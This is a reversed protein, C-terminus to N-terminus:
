QRRLVLLTVAGGLLAVASLRDALKTYQRSLASGTKAAIIAYGTDFIYAIVAFTAALIWIWYQAGSAPIFQPLFAAHFLLTKPNAMAVAFGRVIARRRPLAPLEAAREDTRASKLLQVIALAILYGAGVYRLIDFWRAYFEAVSALGLAVMVLQVTLGANVGAVTAVGIGTGHRISTGVILAINPGPTLILLASALVFVIYLEWTM